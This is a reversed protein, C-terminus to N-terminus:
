SMSQLTLGQTLGIDNYIDDTKKSQSVMQIWM